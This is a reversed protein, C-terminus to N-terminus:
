LYHKQNMIGVKKGKREPAAVIRPIVSLEQNMVNTKLETRGAM